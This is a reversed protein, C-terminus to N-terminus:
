WQFDVQIGEKNFPGFYPSLYRPDALLGAEQAIKLIPAFLDRTHLRDVVLALQHRRGSGFFARVRGLHSERGHDDVTTAYLPSPHSASHQLLYCPRGSLYCDLERRKEAAAAREGRWRSEDANLAM